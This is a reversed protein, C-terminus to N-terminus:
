IWINCNASSHEYMSDHHRLPTSGETFAQEETKAEWCGPCWDFDSNEEQFTSSQGGRWLAINWTQWVRLHSSFPFLHFIAQAPLELNQVFANESLCNWRCKQHYCVYDEEKEEWWCWCLSKRHSISIMANDFCWRKQSVCSVLRPYTTLKSITQVSFM